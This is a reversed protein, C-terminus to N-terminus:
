EGVPQGDNYDLITKVKDVQTIPTVFLDINSNKGKICM